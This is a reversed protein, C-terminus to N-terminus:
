HLEDYENEMSTRLLKMALFKLSVLSLYDITAHSNEKDPSIEVGLDFLFTKVLQM